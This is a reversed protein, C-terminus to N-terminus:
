GRSVDVVYNNSLWNRGLLVRYKMRHRDNLTFEVEKVQDKFEIALMVKFRKEEGESTKVTVESDVYSHVLVLDGDLNETYFEIPRAGTRDPPSVAIDVAHISCTEAGSDVRATFDTEGERLLITETAGVVELHKGPWKVALSVSGLLVAVFLSVKLAKM